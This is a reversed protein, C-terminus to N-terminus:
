VENKIIMLEGNISNGLSPVISSEVFDKYFERKCKTNVFYELIDETKIFREKDYGIYMKYSSFNYDEPRSVINARVPNLHIYRSVELLYSDNSIIEWNFRGEFLHGNLDYKKNFYRTYMSNIRNMILSINAEKMYLLLHIHNTMFCFCNIYFQNKYYKITDMIIKLLIWYDKEERFINEKRNGRLTVHYYSNPSSVRPRTAM